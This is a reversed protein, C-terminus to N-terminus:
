FLFQPLLFSYYKGMVGKCVFVEVYIAFNMHFFDIMKSNAFIWLAERM